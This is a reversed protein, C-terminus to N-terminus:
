NKDQAALEKLYQQRGEVMYEWVGKRWTEVRKKELDTAALKVAADMLAGLEKMREETGMRMWSAKVSTGIKRTERNIESIRYYFKELPEGAAGFYLSFFEDILQRYDTGTDLATQMYLYYDLQEGIGCLFFGRVGDRPYRKVWESIVDPMFCPFCKYGEMIAREMPHHFYNWVYFRNGGRTIWQNYFKVDNDWLSTYGYCTQICPAVAVNPELPFSPPYSYVHYALTSIYKDPHTKAVEKAVANVFGFVYDSATGTAFHGPVDHEKGRALVAQCRECKCWHDTDQPIVAFYDGCAPQSGKLGKGDFYDRADQAVQQVLDPNTLCLQRWNGENEWGVAFFDPRSSEWLRSDEAKVLFRDQFSSFSHNGAWKEGGM